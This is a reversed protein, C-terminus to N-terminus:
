SRNSSAQRHVYQVEYTTKARNIKREDKQHVIVCDLLLMLIPVVIDLSDIARM